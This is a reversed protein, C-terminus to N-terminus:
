FKDEVKASKLLDDILKKRAEFILTLYVREEVEEYTVDQKDLCKLIHWGYDSRVPASIEGPKLKMAAEVVHQDLPRAPITNKGIRGILGGARRNADDSYKQATEDFNEKALSVLGDIKKKAEAFAAERQTEVFKNVPPHGEAQWAPSYPHGDPDLVQIFIHAILSEALKYKATNLAFEARLQKARINQKVILTALADFTFVRSQLYQEATMGHQQIVQMMIARGPVGSEQEKLRCLYSFHFKRDEDGLSLSRAAAYAKILKELELQNLIELLDNKPLQGEAEIIYKRVDDRPYAHAGIRVGEGNGLKRPDIEVGGLKVRKDVLNRKLQEFEKADVRKELPLKKENHFIKMLGLDARMSRKLANLVGAGYDREIKALDDGLPGGKHKLFSKLEQEVEADTVDIKAKEVEEARISYDIFSQVYKDWAEEVLVDLVDKGMITDGNVVRYAHGEQIRILPNDQAIEARAGFAAAVLVAVVSLTSRNM